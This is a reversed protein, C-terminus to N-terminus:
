KKTKAFNKAEFDMRKKMGEIAQEPTNQRYIAMNTNIQKHGLITMNEASTTGAEYYATGASNRLLKFNLGQNIPCKSKVIRVHERLTDYTNYTTVRGTRDKIKEYLETPIPAFSTFGTKHAKIEFFYIGDKNKLQNMTLDFFDAPRQGLYFNLRVCLGAESYGLQEAMKHFIDVDDFSWIPLAKRQRPIRLGQFPNDGKLICLKIKGFNYLLRLLDMCDKAWKAKCIDYLRIYIKEAIPPTILELNLDTIFKGNNNKVLKIYNYARIYGQKTNNSLEKDLLTNGKAPRGIGRRECFKEWIYSLCKQNYAMDDPTTMYPKIQTKYIDLCENKASEFDDSLKKNKLHLNGDSNKLVTKVIYSPPSFYFSVGKKGIYKKFYPIRVVEKIM